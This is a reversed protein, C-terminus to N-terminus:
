LTGVLAGREKQSLRKAWKVRAKPNAGEGTSGWEGYQATREAEPKNWNHWGEPRIHGGLTCEM